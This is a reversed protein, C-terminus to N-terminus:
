GLSGVYRVAAPNFIVTMHELPRSDSSFALRQCRLLPLGGSADLLAPHEDPGPLGVCDTCRVPSLGLESLSSRIDDISAPAAFPVPLRAVPVISQEYAVPQDGLVVLTTAEMVEGPFRVDLVNREAETMRRTRMGLPNRALPGQRPDVPQLPCASPGAVPQGQGTVFTGSGQRRRVIGQRELGEVARRVTGISVGIEEALAQESPLPEGSTWAGTRIRELLIERVQRYLPKHVAILPGFSGDGM